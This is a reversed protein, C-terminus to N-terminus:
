QLMASFTACAALNPAADVQQVQTFDIVAWFAAAVLLDFHEIPAAAFRFQRQIRRIPRHRFVGRTHPAPATLSNSNRTRTL